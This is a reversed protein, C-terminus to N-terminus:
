KQWWKPNWLVRQHVVILRKKNTPDRCFISACPEVKRIWCRYSHHHWRMECLLYYKSQFEIYVQGSTWKFTYWTVLRVKIISLPRCFALPVRQTLITRTRPRRSQMIGLVWNKWSHQCRQTFSVAMTFHTGQNQFGTVSSSLKDFLLFIAHLRFIPNVLIM